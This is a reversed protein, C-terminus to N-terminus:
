CLAAPIQLPGQGLLQRNLDPLMLTIHPSSQRSGEAGQVLSVPVQVGEIPRDQLIDLSGNDICVQAVLHTYM